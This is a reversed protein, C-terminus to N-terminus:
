YLEYLIIECLKCTLFVISWTLFCLPWCVAPVMMTLRCLSGNVLGLKISRFGNLNSQSYLKTQTTFWSSVINPYIEEEM